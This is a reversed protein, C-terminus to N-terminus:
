LSIQFSTVFTAHKALQRTISQSRPGSTWSPVLGIYQVAHQIQISLLSPVADNRSHKLGYNERWCIKLGRPVNHKHMAQEIEVGLGNVFKTNRMVPVKGGPGLNMKLAVAVRADAAYVEHNTSSDFVFLGWAEPHMQNFAPISTEELQKLVDTAQWYGYHNKVPEIIM